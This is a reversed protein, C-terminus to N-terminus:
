RGTLRGLAARAERTAWAAPSGQALRDLLQGAEPTGLQELLEVCWLLRRTAPAPLRAQQIEKLLSEMRQRAEASPPRKLAKEIHPVAEDGAGRLAMECTFGSLGGRDPPDHACGAPVLLTFAASELWGMPEAVLTLGNAFTHLYIPENM